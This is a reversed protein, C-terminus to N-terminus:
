IYIIVKRRREKEEQRMEKERERVFRESQSSKKIKFGVDENLEDQFSLIGQSVTKIPVKPKVTTSLHEDDGNKEEEDEAQLCVCVCM